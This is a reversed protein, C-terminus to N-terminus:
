KTCRTASIAELNAAEEKYGELASNSMILEEELKKALLYWEHENDGRAFECQTRQKIALADCRPTTM